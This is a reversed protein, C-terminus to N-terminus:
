TGALYDVTNTVKRFHGPSTNANVSRQEQGLWVVAYDNLTDLRSIENPFHTLAGTLVNGLWCIYNLNFYIYWQNGAIHVFIASM